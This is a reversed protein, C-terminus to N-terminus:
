DVREDQVSGEKLQALSVCKPIRSGANACLSDSGYRQEFYGVLRSDNRRERNELFSYRHEIRSKAFSFTEDSESCFKLAFYLVYMGCLHSHESQIRFPMSEPVQEGCLNLLKAPLKAAYSAAPLAFSDFFYIQNKSPNVLLGLWHGQKKM